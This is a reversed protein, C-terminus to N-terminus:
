EAAAKEAFSCSFATGDLMEVVIEQTQHDHVMGRADDSM